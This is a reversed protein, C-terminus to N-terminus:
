DHRLGIVAAFRGTVGERRYSYYEARCVTCHGAIEIRNPLVGATQLQDRSIAWFDFYGPKVQYSHFAPPLEQQFNVFQACCPGLSPGIGARLEQPKTGFAARMTEITAAIINGVSGRWGSHAIGVARHVPDHLLVAQCDAQQIMLTVGPLATVLADCSDEEWDGARVRDIVRVETGHVQRCAVLRSISLAEKIRQRNALVNAEADGVHLGVNLSSWPKPSIGGHRTFVAHAIGESLHSFTIFPLQYDRASASMGSLIICQRAPRRSIQPPSLRLFFPSLRM